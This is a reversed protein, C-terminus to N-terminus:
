WPLFNEALKGMQPHHSIKFNPINAAPVPKAAREDKPPSIIQRDRTLGGFPSYAMRDMAPAIRTAVLAKRKTAECAIRPPASVIHPNM